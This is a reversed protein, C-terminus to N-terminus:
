SQNAIWNWGNLVVKEDSVDIEEKMTPTLVPLPFKVKVSVNSLLPLPKGMLSTTMNWGEFLQM